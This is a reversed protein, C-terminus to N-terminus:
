KANEMTSSCLKEEMSTETGYQYRERLSRADHRDEQDKAEQIMDIYKQELDIIGSKIFYEVANITCSQNRSEFGMRFLVALLAPYMAYFAAPAVWDTKGGEYLYQM